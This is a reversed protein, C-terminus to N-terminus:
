SMGATFVIRTGQGPRSEVELRGGVERARRQMNGLGNGRHASDPDFGSGDDEIRLVLDSGDLTVTIGIHGAHGHRVANHLAEKFVLYANRVLGMSLRRAPIADPARFSWEVDELLSAAATRMKRLLAALNDHAPDVLWIVDRLGSMTEQAALGIRSLQRREREGLSPRGELMQSLLAISSLNAGIDDHLDSAIRVRLREMELLRGVRFRYAAALLGLVSAAALLRFWWTQWVFPALVFPWSAARSWDSTGNVAQVRFTYRGPHLGTYSARTAPGVDVWDDDYGDLRYRYHSQNPAAFALAVFDFQLQRTGPPVRTHPAGRTVPLPANDASALTLRVRPPPKATAGTPDIVVAGDINNFLLRGDSLKIAAPSGRNSERNPLGESETFM